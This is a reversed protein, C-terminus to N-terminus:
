KGDRLGLASRAPAPDGMLEETLCAGLPRRPKPLIPDDPRGPPRFGGGTWPVGDSQPKFAERVFAEQEIWWTALDPHDWMVERLKDRRKLFCLDCNGEHPKLQLDFPQRRWFDLVEPKKIGAVALPAVARFRDKGAENRGCLNDVRRMEDARFGVANVWHEWGLSMVYRAQTRIKLEITCFRAVGNPLFRREEILARFPEGSRAASNHNVVAFRPEGRRFEIWVIAAGFNRGVDHVFDLTEAREKGTNAFCVVVDAPLTGGHAQLIRWLMYGSTRGGSFAITAPGEIKFPDTM